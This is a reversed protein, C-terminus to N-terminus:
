VLFTSNQLYNKFNVFFILNHKIYESIIKKLDYIEM